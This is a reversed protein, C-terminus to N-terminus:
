DRYPWDNIADIERFLAAVGRELPDSRTARDEAWALWDAVTREGVVDDPVPRQRLEALFARAVRVDDSARAFQVLRRWRNSERQQRRREQEAQRRREEATRAADERERRLEALHPGMALITAAVDPLIAEIPHTDSELWERRFRGSSWTHIVVHLRGTGVLETVMRNRDSSWRKEDDDLPQRVQRLKERIEFEIREGAVEAFVHGRKDGDTISAGEKELAKLLAHLARQGKREMDTFDPVAWTRRLWPDREGAAEKRRREHDARWAAIVPHPRVLREPVVIDGLRELQRDLNVMPVEAERERRRL